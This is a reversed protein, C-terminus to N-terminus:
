KFCVFDVVARENKGNANLVKGNFYMTSSGGGDLPIGYTCGKNILLQACQRYTLGSSEGDNKRGDSVVIWIDGPNGNTGMFTRQARSTDNCNVIEGDTLIEPGFCFTDTVVGTAALEALTPGNYKDKVINGFLGSVNSYGAVYGYKKENCVVGNRIVGYELYPASFCGNVAFIADLRKAAHSTTEYGNKYRGNSCYTGLRSYDTFELHAIYCWANEYWERYITIKATDDSWVIPYTVVDPKKTTLYSTSIYVEEGNYICKSWGNSGIAIRTVSENTKLQGIKNYDTSPGTRINVTSVAYVTENVEKYVVEPKEEEPATTEPAVTTEPVTTTEPATTTEPTVTTEPSATTEQNTTTEEPITTEPSIITTEEKSETTVDITTEENRTEDVVINESTEVDDQNTEPGVVNESEGEDTEVRVFSDDNNKEHTEESTKEIVTIDEPEHVTDLNDLTHGIEMKCAAFFVCVIILLISICFIKRSM